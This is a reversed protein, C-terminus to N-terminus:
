LHRDCESCIRLSPPTSTMFTAYTHVYIFFLPILQGDLDPRKFTRTEPHPYFTRTLVTRRPIEASTVSLPDIKLHNCTRIKVPKVPFPLYRSLIPISRGGFVQRWRVIEGSNEGM